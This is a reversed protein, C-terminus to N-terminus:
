CLNRNTDVSISDPFCLDTDLRAIKMDLEVMDEQRTKGHIEIKM